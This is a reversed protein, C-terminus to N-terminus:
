KQRTPEGYQLQLVKARGSGLYSVIYLNDYDSDDLQKYREDAVLLNLMAPTTNSHGSILLTKGKNKDIAKIMEPLDNPNYEIIALNHQRAISEVTSQTRKYSTSYVKDIKVERLINKLARAREHGNETLVPDDGQDPAKEAHRVLILTTIPEDQGYIKGFMLCTIIILLYQKIQM